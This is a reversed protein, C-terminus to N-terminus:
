VCMVDVCESVCVSACECVCGCHGATGESGVVRVKRTCYARNNVRSDIFASMIVTM